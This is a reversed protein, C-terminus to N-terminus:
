EIDTSIESIGTQPISTLINNFEFDMDKLEKWIYSMSFGDHSLPYIRKIGNEVKILFLDKKPTESDDYFEVGIILENNSANGGWLGPSGSNTELLAKNKSTIAEESVVLEYSFNNYGDYVQGTAGIRKVYFSRVKNLFRRM